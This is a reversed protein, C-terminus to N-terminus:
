YNWSSHGSSGSCSLCATRFCGVLAAYCGLHAFVEMVGHYFGQSVSYGVLQMSCLGEELTLLEETLGSIVQMNDHLHMVTNLVAPWM